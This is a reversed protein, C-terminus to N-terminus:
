PSQNGRYVVSWGLLDFNKERESCEFRFRIARGRGRVKNKTVIVRWDNDLTLSSPDFAPLRLLRYVETQPSWKNSTEAGAWDWKVRFLCSSAPKLIYDNINAVYGTETRNFYCFIYPTKKKNMADELIEDGTEIYSNYTVGGVQYNEWDVFNENNFEAFTLDYEDEVADLPLVSYKLLLNKTTLEEADAIITNTSVVVQNTGVLVSAEAFVRNFKPTVFIGTLYVGASTDISWPYFAGLLLDLNLIHNYLNLGSVSTDRFLWQIVNSAPDYAAKIYPRGAEIITDNFYTQITDQSIITKSLTGEVPGFLGSTQEIKQVGVKSIWYIGDTGEIISWPSDTGIANLKTLRITEASFGNESGDIFWVGNTGFILIGTGAPYLRLGEGLGFVPIVGGDTAVLESQNESTPDAQQYCAGINTLEKTLVQSFYVREKYLYWVRGSFFAVSVPREKILEVALGSIGSVSSRDVRFVDIIYHGKPANTNGWYTKNLLAPDFIGDTDKGLWWQKNNGPYRKFINYYQQIVESELEPINDLVSPPIGASKTFFASFVRVFEKQEALDPRDVDLWGQNRLNYFHEATLTTPEQDNALGDNVGELDRATIYVQRVTISDTDPDYIVVLPNIFRGTIFLHGNGNAFSVMHSKAYSQYSSLTLYSNLDITFSKRNASLADFSLDFFLLTLGIQQVLFNVGTQQAVNYWTYENTAVATIDTSSITATDILTYGEEFDVGFRRTRNGKRYLVCNDEDASANEAFVLPSAETILGKVFTNYLKSSNTSAM